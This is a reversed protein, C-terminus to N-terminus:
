YEKGAKSHLMEAVFLINEERGETGNEGVAKILDAALTLLCTLEYVALELQLVRGRAEKLNESIMSAEPRIKDCM